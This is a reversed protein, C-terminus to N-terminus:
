PLSHFFDNNFLKEWDNTTIKYLNQFWLYAYYNGFLENLNYDRIKNKQNFVSYDYYFGKRWGASFLYLVGCNDPLSINAFSISKIDAIDDVFICEGKKVSKKLKINMIVEAENILVDAKKDPHVIALLNDIQSPKIQQNSLFVNLGELRSILLDGDESSVFEKCILKLKDGKKVSHLAYGAPLNPLQLTYRM